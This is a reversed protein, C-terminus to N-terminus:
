ALKSLRRVLWEVSLAGCIGVLLWITLRRQFDQDPTGPLFTEQDKRLVAHHLPPPGKLTTAADMGVYYIGGTQMSLEKMRADNRESREIEMDPIRVRVDSVLLDDNDSDPIQLQVQYDGELLAAFQGAFMGGRAADRVRRLVLTERTSDPLILIAAVEEADLPQHQEDSLSARITITDGLPCRRKNVMLLGRSSDRLLRGQAVHRILKTYFQEFHAEDMGRLRWMEGSALFFVRGAGYFHGAMYIPLERDGIGIAAEPDSFRAYVMAGPKPAKVAYYGYVGGFGAWIQESKLSSDDLWLFEAQRGESTFNLPWASENGFRDMLQGARGHGFFVVPYFGKVTEIRRDGRSLAVWQPTHVTGTVLILGGAKEALWRDLLEIQNSNLAEWDPDFAVITDYHFLEDPETPFDFLLTDAEQSIGSRATQLLVDVITNQDRYLLNRLFRFERMPGGALLLVRNKREVIQVTANRENDRADHDQAPAQVRLRYVRRGPEQPTVEFRAPIVKDSELLTVTLEDELEPVNGADDGGDPRSFLQVKVSRGEMGYAQLFGTVTFSDGPYVRSPAQLDAIRVNIPRRDLGMGVTFLPIEAQRAIEVAVRPDIGANHNGDSILVIGAIPGGSERDVLYRLADGIRTELGTPQLAVAWDIDEATETDEAEDQEPGDATPSDSEAPAIEVPSDMGVVERWGINPNRLNSIALAVVATLLLTVSILASWSYWASQARRTVLYIIEFALSGLLLLGAMTSMWRAEALSEATGERETAQDEAGISEVLKPFAAVETPVASQDFRYALVDHNERLNPILEGHALHHIVHEVRSPAAPVSTADADHLGMSQSTDILLLVRSNKILKQSTLKELQMFTLLICAMAFIRLMLLGAALGPRLEVSDLWYMFGIYALVISSIAALVLWHWWEDMLHLRTWEYYTRSGAEGLIPMVRLMM